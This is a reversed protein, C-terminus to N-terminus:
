AKAQAIITVADNVAQPILSATFPIAGDLLGFRASRDVFAKGQMVLVHILGFFRYM